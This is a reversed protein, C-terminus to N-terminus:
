KFCRFSFQWPTRAVSLKVKFDLCAYALMLNYKHSILLAMCSRVDKWSIRGVGGTTVWRVCLSVPKLPSLYNHRCWVLLCFSIAPFHYFLVLSRTMPTMSQHLAFLSFSQEDNSAMEIDTEVSRQQTNVRSFCSSFCWCAQKKMKELQTISRLTNSQLYSM